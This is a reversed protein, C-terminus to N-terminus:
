VRFSLSFPYTAHAASFTQRQRTHLQPIYIYIHTRSCAHRSCPEEAFRFVACGGSFAGSNGSAFMYLQYGYGGILHSPLAMVLVHMIHSAYSRHSLSEKSAAHLNELLALHLLPFFCFPFVMFVVVSSFLPLFLPGAMSSPTSPSVPYSLSAMIM